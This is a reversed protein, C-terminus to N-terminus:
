SKMDCFNELGLEKMRNLIFLDQGAYRLAGCCGASAKIAQIAREVEEPSTPQKTFYCHSQRNTPQDHYFGMLDPAEGHPQKCSICWGNVVYFDGSVNKSYRDYNENGPQHIVKAIRRRRTAWVFGQNTHTLKRVLPARVRVRHVVAYRRRLRHSAPRKRALM